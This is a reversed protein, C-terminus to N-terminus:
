ESEQRRQILSTGLARDECGQEAQKRSDTCRLGPRSKEQQRGTKGIDSDNGFSGAKEQRAWLLAAETEDNRGGGSPSEM